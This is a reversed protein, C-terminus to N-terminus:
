RTTGKCAIETVVQNFREPQEVMPSHGCEQFTYVSAGFFEATKAALEKTILPDQDGRLVHVPLEVGALKERFDAKALAEAHGIFCDRNMRWADDLLRSYLDEDTLTPVAGRLAQALVAKDSRYAEIAPYYERPTVLGEVPSPDVLVLGNVLSPRRSLLEMAVAGGLSHGVVIAATVGAADCIAGIWDAYDSMAYGDIHDSAGFNPMDPALARGPYAALFSEFWRGSGLNGHICLITPYAEDGPESERLHISSNRVQLTRENM